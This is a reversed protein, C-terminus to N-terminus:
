VFQFLFESVVYVPVMVTKNCSPEVLLVDMQIKKQRVRATVCRWLIGCVQQGISQRCM